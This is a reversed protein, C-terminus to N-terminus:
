RRSLLETIYPEYLSAIRYSGHGITEASRPILVYQGRTIRALEREMVGLEPPNVSDDATNIAIVRAKIMELTAAPNFDRSAEFQYLVDNADMTAIGEAVVADFRADAQARTPAAKYILLPTGFLAVHGYQAGILGRTPQSEYEGNKWDPDNRISDIVIRRLMRSFGGVEAPLCQLPLLADMFDPYISGWMWAHMGGMSGGIILRLHRIGLHETVLRHQARVMDEYVYHPFRGKLGDSPKSSGGTGIGDPLIIFYRAADLPQGPEFMKDAFSSALFVSGSGGTGHLILVPEGKPDGITRYHLRLEPLVEGSNFRFDRIIWDAEKPTPFAAADSAFAVLCLAVALLFRTRQSLEYTPQRLRSM